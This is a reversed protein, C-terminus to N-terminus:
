ALVPPGTKPPPPAALGLGPRQDITATAAETQHVAAFIVPLAAQSPEPAVTAGAFACPHHHLAQSKEGTDPAVPHGAADLAVEMAGQGTCVVITPLGSRASATAMFGGPVLARLSLAVLAMALALRQGLGQRRSNSGM